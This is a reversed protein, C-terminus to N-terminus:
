EFVPAVAKVTRIRCLFCGSESLALGGKSFLVMRLLFKSEDRTVAPFHAFQLICFRKWYNQAQTGLRDAPSQLRSHRPEFLLALNGLRKGEAPEFIALSSPAGSMDFM